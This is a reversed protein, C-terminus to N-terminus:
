PKQFGADQLIKQAEPSSLWKVFAAAESPNEADRITAAPYRAITNQADPIEIADVKGRVTEADTKYLLGADAKGLKVRRLVARASTELSAPKVEIDQADLIERSYRGIPVEPAALAVKLNPDALDKLNKIKAPNGEATAIVLRNTAIITPTNTDGRLSNMTRTDATVLTDVPAGQNVQAALEQSGAFYFKIKTDPHKKEYATAATNFVDTLSSAALVLLDTAPTALAAPEPKAGGAAENKTDNTGCASLPILLAAALVASTGHRRIPTFPM